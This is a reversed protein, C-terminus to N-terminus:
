ADRASGGDGDQRINIISLDASFCIHGSQQVDEHRKSRIVSMQGTKRVKVGRDGTELLTGHERDFLEQSAKSIM